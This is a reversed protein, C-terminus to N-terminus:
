GKRARQTRSNTVIHLHSLVWANFREPQEQNALHGADKVIVYATKHLGGALVQSAEVGTVTDRDGCVVLAPAAVASLEPRLDAGAMSAAAYGYGPLRVADAMTDVVREVLATPALDSVLRPARKEAFVRPGAEALDAVRARMGAAKAEDTGSGASSDAVILSDVLEPHRTALRLAIVGGWSVGLVHASAGHARIVDAAADAFGDLDLPEEPDDSRGYGPADWAIVRVHGSLGALQPAFAASSSGIGHLCLLLPGQEGATELHVSM